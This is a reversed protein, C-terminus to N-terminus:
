QYSRYDEQEVVKQSSDLQAMEGKCMHAVILRNTIKSGIIGFLLCFLIPHDSFITTLSAIALGPLFLLLLPFLPSFVSTGAITGGEKNVSTMCAPLTNRM